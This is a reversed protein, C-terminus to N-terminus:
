KPLMKAKYLNILENVLTEHRFSVRVDPVNSCAIDNGLVGEEKFGPGLWRMKLDDEFGSQLISNKALECMDCFTLKWLQRAISYEEMLPEKTLHFQLPDDTSLSVNLGQKLYVPMPNREYTLFLNNNSMPSMAIGIQALYYLYHLAPANVLKIGHAISESTLFGISLHSVAGAEGCHPRLAFANLGRLRRFANLVALNAYMYYMYYAYSPNKKSTYDAPKPSDKTLDESETKSEDDVSDFGSVQLLFEHLQPDSNPNNTVEFLPMFLNNLFEDFNALIGKTCYIDFLRPVQILWRANPSRVNNKVAWNALKHWEDTARGYISLRPEMQQYKSEELDSFVELMLEAFYKGGMYNDTKIFIERLENRGIPNYKSNFRDFRQFTDKDANVDLMDVSLDYPRVNIQGFLESLTVEKGSKDKMVVVNADTRIKKKMFRLLHKHNMSSAAHIHNDVKRVNYFDRHSINRQEENELEENLLVHTSFRSNLLSLRKFCFTKLPGDALLDNVMTYDAYFQDRSLYFEELAPAIRWGDGDKQTVEVIGNARRLQFQQEYTQQLPAGWHEVSVERPYMTDSTKKSKMKQKRLEDPYKGDVFNRTTTPFHTGIRSMYVSRLELANILSRAASRLEKPPVGASEESDLCMRQYNVNTADRYSHLEIHQGARLQLSERADAVLGAKEEKKSKPDM